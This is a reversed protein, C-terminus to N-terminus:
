YMLITDIIIATNTVEDIFQIIIVYKKKNCSTMVIMITVCTVEITVSVTHVSMAMTSWVMVMNAMTLYICIDFM